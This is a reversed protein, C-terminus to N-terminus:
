NLTMLSHVTKVTEGDPLDSDSCSLIVPYSKGAELSIDYEDERSLPIAFTVETMTDSQRGALVQIDQSGGLEMDNKHTQGDTGFHDEGMAIGMMDDVWVVLVDAGQLDTEAGLALAIRGRSPAQVIVILRDRSLEWRFELETEAKEATLCPLVSLILILTLLAKKM